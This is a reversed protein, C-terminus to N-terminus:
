WGRARSAHQGAMPEPNPQDSRLPPSLCLRRLLEVAFQCPVLAPWLCARLSRFHFVLKARTAGGLLSDPRVMRCVFLTRAVFFELHHCRNWSGGHRPLAPRSKRGAGARCRPLCQPQHNPFQNTGGHGTRRGACPLHHVLRRRRVRVLVSCDEHIRRQYARAALSDIWKPAPQKRNLCASDTTM